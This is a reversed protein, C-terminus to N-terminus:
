HYGERMDIKSFIKARSLMDLMDGIRPIPFRYKIPIKNIAQNDM